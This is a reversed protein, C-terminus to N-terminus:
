EIRMSARVDDYYHRILNAVLQLRDQDNWCKAFAQGLQKLTDQVGYRYAVHLSLDGPGQSYPNPPEFKM